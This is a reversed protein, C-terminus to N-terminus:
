LQERMEYEILEEILWDIYKFWQQQHKVSQFKKSSAHAHAASAAAYAADVIAASYTASGAAASSIDRASIGYPNLRLVSRDVFCPKEETIKGDRYDKAAQIIKKDIDRTIIYQISEACRWAWKSRVELPYTECLHWTNSEQTIIEYKLKVLLRTQEYNNM